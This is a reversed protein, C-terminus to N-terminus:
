MHTPLCVTKTFDDGNYSAVPGYYEAWTSFNQATAANLRDVIVWEDVSFDYYDEEELDLGGWYDTLTEGLANAM